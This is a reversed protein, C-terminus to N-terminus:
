FGLISLSGDMTMSPTNLYSEFSANWKSCAPSHRSNHGIQKISVLKYLYMKDEGYCMLCPCLPKKDATMSFTKNIAKLHYIVHPVLM